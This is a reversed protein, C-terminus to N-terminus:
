SAVATESQIELRSTKFSLTLKLTSSLLDESGLNASIRTDNMSASPFEVLDTKFITWSIEAGSNVNSDDSPIYSPIFCSQEILALAFLMAAYESSMRMLTDYAGSTAPLSSHIM